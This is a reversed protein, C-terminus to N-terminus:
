PRLLLNMQEVVTQASRLAHATKDAPLAGTGYQAADKIDLLYSLARVAPGANRVQRLLDVAQHHDQGRSRQKLAHGCIADGAAIGALVALSVSVSRYSTEEEEAVLQAVELFKRAAEARVRVEGPTMAAVRGTSRPTM